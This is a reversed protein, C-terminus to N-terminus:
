TNIQFGGSPIISMARSFSSSYGSSSSIRTMYLINNVFDAYCCDANYGNITYFIPINNIITDYNVHFHGALMFHFTGTCSTFDYTLNNLTIVHRQNYANAILTLNEGLERSATSAQTELRGIIHILGFLHPKQNSLLHTAFWDVQTWRYPTMSKNQNGSDFMYCTTENTDVTYYGVDSDYWLKALQTETLYASAPNPAEVNLDHNGIVTYAKECIRNRILNPVRGGRYKATTLTHNTNLWDGGCLVYQAPSNEYLTRIFTMHELIQFDEYGSMDHPDTFFIFGIGNGDNRFTSAYTQLGDSFSKGTGELDSIRKDFASVSTLLSQNQAVWRRVYDSQAEVTALRKSIDVLGM